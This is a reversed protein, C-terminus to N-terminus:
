RKASFVGACTLAGHEKLLGVCEDHKDEIAIDLPTKLVKIQVVDDWCRNISNRNVSDLKLLYEIGELFGQRAAEALPTMDGAEAEDVNSFSALLKMIKLHRGTTAAWFPTHRFCASKMRSWDTHRLIAEVVEAHGNRAALHLATDGKGDCYVLLDMLLSYETSYLDLLYEVLELHGFCAAWHLYTRGSKSSLQMDSHHAVNYGSATASRFMYTNGHIAALELANFGFLEGGPWASRPLLSMVIDCQKDASLTSAIHLRSRGLVDHDDGRSGLAINVDVENDHFIHGVPRWLCDRRGDQEVAQAVAPIQLLNRPMFLQTAALDIFLVEELGHREVVGGISDILKNRTHIMDQIDHDTPSIYQLRRMQLVYGIGHHGKATYRSIDEDQEELGNFSDPLPPIYVMDMAAALVFKVIASSANDLKERLVDLISSYNTVVEHLSELQSDASSTDYDDILIFQAEGIETLEKM